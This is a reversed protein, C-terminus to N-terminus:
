RGTMRCVMAIDPVNLTRFTRVLCDARLEVPPRLGGPGGAVAAGLIRKTDRGAPRTLSAMVVCDPGSSAADLSAAAASAADKMTLSAALTCDVTCSFFAIVNLSTGAATTEHSAGAASTM